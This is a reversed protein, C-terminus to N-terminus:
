EGGALNRAAAVVADTVHTMFAFDLTEIRDGRTHYYPNRMFATDTLMLAPYGQDWFSANDSLRTHAVLWGRFPSRFTVIPLEPVARRAVTAFERLLRASQGDGTAALFTGTKPIRKWFLLAPIRQGNPTTDTYGVMELILAGRYQVGRQRMARAFADSGVRYRLGQPEELNLGVFELTAACTQSALVRAAELMAAIGSANDDAGPTLPVTDFHAGILVRPREPRTGARTGVVNHYEAGDFNFPVRDVTLRLAALERAVYHEARALADPTTHRHRPGCLAAVHARLREPDAGPKESRM